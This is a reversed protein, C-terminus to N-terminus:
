SKYLWEKLYEVIEKASPPCGFVNESFNSTCAGIGIGEMKKGKFGQGIYVKDKFNKILGKRELKDLAHVLSGYCASCADSEEIYKSLREVKRSRKIKTVEYDKNLEFINAKNIDAVGIGIEKAIKIYPVEELDFGMLEAAYADVLVPDKGLIIRNMEVPNGGEEFSLDGMMGDVVVLHSKVVLNLYAIPKHLGMTHFRRKESDPICGKINKLACTINTQCHGKLVPVNILYDIERVKNCVNLKMGKVNYTRYGDRQLDVLAVGYKKSIEEYGCVKFARSTSDGIWSGELITINNYGLSKLYEVIGEVIKPSTTAGSTYPKAVVLNPKIGIRATKDVDKEIGSAALVKKVMEKPSNGYIVKIDNKNM